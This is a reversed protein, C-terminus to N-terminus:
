RKSMSASISLIDYKLIEVITNIRRMSEQIKTNNTGFLNRVTQMSYGISSILQSYYVVPSLEYNQIAKYAETPYFTFRALNKLITNKEAEYKTSKLMIQDYVNLQILVELSNTKALNLVM